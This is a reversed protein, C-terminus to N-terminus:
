TCTSPMNMYKITDMPVNLKGLADDTIQTDGMRECWGLISVLVRGQMGRNKIHDKSDRSWESYSIKNQSDQEGRLISLNIQREPVM